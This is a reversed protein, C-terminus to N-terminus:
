AANVHVPLQVLALTYVNLDFSEVGGGPSVPGMVLGRLYDISGDQNEVKFGYTDYNTPAGAARMATQGADADNRACEVEPDGANTIGKAKTQVADNLTDYSVVNTDPGFSGINGVGGVETFTMAEFATEDTEENAVETSISIKRGRYTHANTAM